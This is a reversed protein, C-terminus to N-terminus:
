KRKRFKFINYHTPPIPAFFPHNASSIKCVILFKHM